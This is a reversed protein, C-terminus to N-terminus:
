TALCITMPQSSHFAERSAFRALSLARPRSAGERRFVPKPLASALSLFAKAPSREGFNPM